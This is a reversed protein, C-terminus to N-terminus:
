HRRYRYYNYTPGYYPRPQQYDTCRWVYTTIYARHEQSWYQIRVKRCRGGQAQVEPVLTIYLAIALVIAAVLILLRNEKIAENMRM